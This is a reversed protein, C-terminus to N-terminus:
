EDLVVVAAKLVRVAVTRRFEPGGLLRAAPQGAETMSESFSIDLDLRQQNSIYRTTQQVTATDVLVISASGLSPPIHVVVNRGERGFVMAMIVRLLTRIDM